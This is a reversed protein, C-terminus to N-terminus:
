AEKILRSTALALAAARSLGRASAWADLQALLEPQMSVSMVSKNGVMRPAKKAAKATPQATATNEAPASEVVPSPPIHAAPEAAIAHAQETAAIAAAQRLNAPIADPAKNIFEDPTM